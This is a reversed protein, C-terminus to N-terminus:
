QELLLTYQSALINYQFYFFKSKADYVKHILGPLVHGDELNFNDYPGFVNTPIVSTYRLGHQEYYGRNLKSFFFLILYFELQIRKV